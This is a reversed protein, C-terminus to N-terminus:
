LPVGNWFIYLSIRNGRTFESFKLIFIAHMYQNLSHFTTSREKVYMGQKEKWVQHCQCELTEELSQFGTENGWKGLIDYRHKDYFDKITIEFTSRYKWIHKLLIFALIQLTKIVNLVVM